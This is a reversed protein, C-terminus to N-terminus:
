EAGSDSFSWGKAQLSTKAAAAHAQYQASPFDFRDIATPNINQSDLNILFASYDENTASYNSSSASPLNAADTIAEFNWNSLNLMTAPNINNFMTRMNTVKSTNWNSVNPQASNAENFMEQMTTVNSTDWNSVDPNAQTAQLFVLNMNTVKSTDWNTMVPTAVANTQFLISMDELSETNWNSLNPNAISNLFAGRITTVKSVDWNSVDPNAVVSSAFMFSMTELSSTVWAGTQPNALTTGNFMANMNTVKRVDWSSVDPNASSSGSFMASMNEVNSTEWSSLDPIALTTGQFARRMNKVSKTNWNEVPPAPLLTEEFVGEISELSRTNWEGIESDDFDVSRYFTYDMSKVESLDGLGSLRSLSSVESFAYDLNKIRVEGFDVVEILQSKYAHGTNSDGFGEFVGTVQITYLGPFAYSHSMNQDEASNVTVLSSGDGWDIQAKYTYGTKVPLSVIENPTSTQWVSIFPDRKVQFDACGCLMLIM